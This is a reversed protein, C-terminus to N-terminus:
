KDTEKATPAKIEKAVAPAQEQAPAEPEVQAVDGYALRRLWYSLNGTVRAGETPLPKMTAPDRIVLGPSPKVFLTDSM